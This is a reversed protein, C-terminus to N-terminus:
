SSVIGEKRPTPRAKWVTVATCAPQRLRAEEADRPEDEESDLGTFRASKGATPEPTALGPTAVPVPNGYSKRRREGLPPLPIAASASYEGAPTSTRLPSVVPRASSSTDRQQAQMLQLQQQMFQQTKLLQRLLERDSLEGEDEGKEEAAARGIHVSTTLTPNLTSPHQDITPTEMQSM